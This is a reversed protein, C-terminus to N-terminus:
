ICHDSRSIIRRGWSKISLNTVIQQAHKEDTAVLRNWPIGPEDQRQLREASEARGFDRQAQEEALRIDELAKPPCAFMETLSRGIEVRKWQLGQLGSQCADAHDEVEKKVLSIKGRMRILHDAALHAVFGNSQRREQRFVRHACRRFGKSEEREHMKM